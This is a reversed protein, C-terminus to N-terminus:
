LAAWFKEYTRIASAASTAIEKCLATASVPCKETANELTLELDARHATMDIHRFVFKRFEPDSAMLNQLELLQAWYRAFAHVVVVSYDGAHAGEDSCIPVTRKFGSYIAKWDTMTWLQKFFDEENLRCSADPDARAASAYLVLTSVIPLLLRRGLM